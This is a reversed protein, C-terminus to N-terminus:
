LQQTRRLIMKRTMDKGDSKTYYQRAMLSSALQEMGQEDIHDSPPPLNQQYPDDDPSPAPDLHIKSIVQHLRWAAPLDMRLANGKGVAELIRFARTYRPSLAFKRTSPLSYSKPSLRLRAWGSDFSRDQIARNMMVEAAIQLGEAAIDRAAEREQVLQELAEPMLLTLQTSPTFGYIVQFLTQTVVSSYNSNFYFEITSLFKKWNGQMADVYFRLAIELEQNVRESQGDASPHYTLFVAWGQQRTNMKLPSQTRLLRAALIVPNARHDTYIVTLGSLELDTPWYNREAPTLCKLLFIIPRLMTKLPKLPDEAEADELQYVTVGFDLEKSADLFVNLVKAPDFHRLIDAAESFASTLDQFATTHKRKWLERFEKAGRGKREQPKELPSGKERKPGRFITTKLFNISSIYTALAIAALIDEQLPLPYADLEAVNNLPRLDVVPRAKKVAGEPTYKYVVFVPLSYPSHKAPAMRGLQINENFINDIAQKACPANRYPPRPKLNRELEPAVKIRLWEEEPQRAMGPGDNFIVAFRKVLKRLQKQQDLPLKDNVHVEQYTSTSPDPVVIGEPLEYRYCPQYAEELWEANTDEAKQASTKLSGARNRSEQGLFGNLVETAQAAYAFNGISILEATSLITDRKIQRPEFDQNSFM